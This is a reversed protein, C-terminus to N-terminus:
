EVLKSKTNFVVSQMNGEADVRTCRLLDRDTEHEVCELMSGDSLKHTFTASEVNLMDKLQACGGFVVVMLIVILIKM